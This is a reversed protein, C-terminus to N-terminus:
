DNILESLLPVLTLDKIMESQLPVYTLDKIMGVIRACFYFVKDTRIIM